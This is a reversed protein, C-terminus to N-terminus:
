GSCFIGEEAKDLQVDVVAVMMMVTMLTLIVELYIINIIYM